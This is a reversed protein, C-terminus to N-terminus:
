IHILSLRRHDELPATGDQILTTLFQNFKEVSTNAVKECFESDTALVFDDISVHPEKNPDYQAKGINLLFLHRKKMKLDECLLCWPYKLITDHGLRLLNHVVRFRSELTKEAIFWIKPCTLFVHKLEDVNFGFSNKLLSQNQDFKQKELMLLKPTSTIVHRIEDGTLGFTKQYMGLMKDVDATTLSLFSPFLTMIQVIMSSTFKKSELYKLRIELNELEQQFLMPNKTLIYRLAKPSVKKGTLFEIYPKIDREFDLLLIAEALEPKREWVHLEVGIKLLEQLTQTRSDYSALNFSPGLISPVDDHSEKASEVGTELGDIKELAFEEDLKAEASLHNKSKETEEFDCYVLDDDKQRKQLRQIKTAPKDKAFADMKQLSAEFLDDHVDFAKNFESKSGDSFKPLDSGEPIFKEEPVVNLRRPERFKPKQAPRSLKHDSDADDSAEINRTTRTRGRESHKAVFEDNRTASFLKEEESRSRIVEEDSQQLNQIVDHIFDKGAPDKNIKEVQDSPTNQTTDNRESSISASTSDSFGYSFRPILRRLIATRLM